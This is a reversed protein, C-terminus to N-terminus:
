EEAVMRFRRNKVDLTVAFRGLIAAGLNGHRVIDSFEITPDNFSFRGFALKGKLKGELVPFEGSVSRARRGTDIPTGDLQVKAAVGSPLSLGAASGSDLHAEITQDGITAMLSPIPRGPLYAFITKNDAPGLQGSQIRIENKPFDLTVLYGRFMAPSLVGVPAGEKGLKSLDMAVIVVGSLQAAGLELQDVLVLRGPISKKGPADGGSKVEAQGIVNLKLDTALNQSVVPGSAGTDFYFRYPGQGNVRAEVVPRGARLDM